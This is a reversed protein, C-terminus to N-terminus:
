LNKIELHNSYCDLHTGEIVHVLADRTIISTSAHPFYGSSLHNALLM